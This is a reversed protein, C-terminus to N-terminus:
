HTSDNDDDVLQRKVYDLSLLLTKLEEKELRTTNDSNYETDVLKPGESQVYKTYNLDRMDAPVKYFNGLDEAKSMEEKGCLTEYMKEGHRSGIVNIPNSASFIELLAKALTEITAAPSKQVFLDGSTGNQFAFQVLKVSEDLTMMFRTM